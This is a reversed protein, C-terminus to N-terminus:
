TMAKETQKAGMRALRILATYGWRASFRLLAAGSQTFNGEIRTHECCIKGCSALKCFALVAGKLPRNVNM